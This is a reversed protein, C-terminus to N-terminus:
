KCGGNKEITSLCKTCEKTNSKIWNATESDDQCKKMWMKAVACIVPRHDDEIPCGFCFRHEKGALSLSEQKGNEQLEAVGETIVGRAGCSVTPVITSLSSRSAASPCAVTNTCGPYPCYKLHANSGVFHRLVIERFRDWTTEDSTSHVFTDPAVMACGDQMCRVSHESEDIVKSQIYDRWCLNCFTHGCDLSLPQLDPADDCCVPCSFMESVSTNFSKTPRSLPESKKSPSFASLLKASSSRTSRRAPAPSHSATRALTPSSPPEPMSIGAAVLVSSPNDMYKEILREKNWGLHRLLLASTSAKLSPNLDVKLIPQVELKSVDAGLIGCCHDIDQQMLKEVANKSLSEYDIEYTKRTPGASVNFDM